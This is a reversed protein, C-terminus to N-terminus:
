KYPNIGLEELQFECIDLIQQYESISDQLHEVLEKKYKFHLRCEDCKWKGLKPKIQKM